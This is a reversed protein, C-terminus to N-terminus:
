PRMNMRTVPGPAKAPSIVMDTHEMPMTDLINVSHMSPSSLRM